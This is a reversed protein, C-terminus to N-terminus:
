QGWTEIVSVTVSQASQLSAQTLALNAQQIDQTEVIRDAMLGVNDAMVIIKDNMEVIRAGMAGVDAAIRLVAQTADGLVASDAVPAFGQVATAFGEVSAALQAQAPGLDALLSLTDGDIYFTASQSALSVQAYLALVRASLTSVEASLGSLQSGMDTDTISLGAATQALALTDDALLGLTVNYVITSVSTTMSALNVQTTLLVSQTAALNASQIQQTVLIRDAMAGINDAMVLIRNAMELIRDAMVGIDRSLTLTASIMAALEFRDYAGQVTRLDQSLLLVKAGMSSALASLTALNALDDASPSVPGDISATVGELVDLYDRLSTGLGGIDLCSELPAFTTQDFSADLAEATPVLGAIDAGLDARASLPTCTLVVACVTMGFTKPTM